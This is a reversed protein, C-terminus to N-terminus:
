NVKGTEVFTAVGSFLYNTSLDLSTIGTPCKNGEFTNITVIQSSCHDDVNECQPYGQLFCLQNPRFKNRYVTPIPFGM